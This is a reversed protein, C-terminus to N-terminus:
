CVSERSENDALIQDLRDLAVGDHGGVHQFVQQALVAGGAILGGDLGADLRDLLDQALMIDVAVFGPRTRDFMLSFPRWLTM